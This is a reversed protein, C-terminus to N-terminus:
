SGGSREYDMWRIIFKRCLDSRRIDDETFDIIGVDDMHYTKVIRVLVSLGSDVRLDSQLIDGNVVVASGAGIRTVFMKMQDPVTNQAEDLLVFANNFSRGRMSEFPVIEIDGRKLAIDVAGPGMRDRLIGLQEAFWEVMKEIMTGPRHGIPRGSAENPRTLIIKDVEREMLADAAMVTPVYTKGTGPYGTTITMSRTRISDMLAQQNESLPLLPAKRSPLAVQFKERKAM